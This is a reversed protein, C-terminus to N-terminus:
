IDKHAYVKWYVVPLITVTLPLTFLTGFCIVVGMPMWLSTAAIIMPLVGLATTASTLFVPRMRRLGADFAAQKYSLQKYKRADEAYEYMMIANRVIIGILSVIGLVATISIDLGFVWLGLMAGFVCLIASSLTLLALGIKGFHYLLLVLMVTLAAVISWFIQPLILGNVESLGGYKLEVGEPLTPIHENIWKKVKKEASVQSVSGRLDAGVTMTRIANRRELYTHHWHPEITAVQRLPVWVGPLATPVQIAGLEDATLDQIGATYLVVPVAYSGEYLTTVTAGQTAQRLYVSLMTETIGLRTAEDAKLVIRTSAATNHYNCHPWQLEPQQQMYHLISDAYPAMTEWDDGKVRVELPNRVAQYDLQKFRAYANPFYNEYKATYAKLVQATAKASKTNVILQAYNSAPTQPTYTAHFRPSSQGIFATVCEVRPDARLISALSDAVLASEELPAGDRLHIEVAFFEREAKPLLQLNLNALLVVGIITTGGLLCWVIVPRDFCAQLARKYAGQLWAFFRTQVREVANMEDPRRERIYRFSLYPTVWSAYFISAVLAFLVAWPFLQVFEGLPGTIIRTMPFFMGSIAMTALSMPVFLMSTSVVASYWRSHRRELQNTYGDIVIVSDDVIMGLVFILAALTVTNLEIGTLYMLGICIATCVPLGTAAVLATRLPFLMLMVAIVVLISIVIDRLFSLVSDDVVKPQDTIRHFRIDPPLLSAANALQKDVEKGFAVINNGPMMELNLILCSAGNFEVYQKPTQYRREVTAIDKLRIVAGTAPDSWVIQQSLEYESMYPIVVQLAGHTDSEGGVTRLGQLAMQAEIASPNIGYRSLQEPDITIAIEETQQGMIRLKGMEPITRLSSCVQKAYQELERPSREASEIAILLSSTNGFDDILLTQLVGTPMQTKQLLPLGARIKNWAVESDVGHMRLMIYVYAIGDESHSFTLSKDVAEFSNIYDELPITVQQEVESATAGPYVAVLLAQRMTFQPFEDKNMRPLSWIGFAMMGLFLAMVLGHRRM